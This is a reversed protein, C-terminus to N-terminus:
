GHALGQPNPCNWKGDDGVWGHEQGWEAYEDESMAELVKEALRTARYSNSPNEDGIQEELWKYWALNDVVAGVSLARELRAMQGGANESVEIREPSGRAAFRAAEASDLKEGEPSDLGKLSSYHQEDQPPNGGNGSQGNGVIEDPSQQRNQWSEASEFTVRYTKRRRDDQREETLYGWEVLRKLSRSLNAADCGIEATLTAFTAYCGRGTKKLLSMGDHLSVCAYVRLDLGSPRPDRIIRTSGTFFLREKGPV